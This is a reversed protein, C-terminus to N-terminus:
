QYQEGQEDDGGYAGWLMPGQFVAYNLGALEEDEAKADDEAAGGVM